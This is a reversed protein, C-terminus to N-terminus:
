IGSLEPINGDSNANVIFGRVIRDGTCNRDGTAYDDRTRLEDISFSFVNSWLRTHSACVLLLDREHYLLNDRRKFSLFLSLSLSLSDCLVFSELPATFESGQFRIRHLWHKRECDSICFYRRLKYGSFTWYRLM